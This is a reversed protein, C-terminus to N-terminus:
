SLSANFILHPLYQEYVMYADLVQASMRRQSQIEVFLAKGGKM